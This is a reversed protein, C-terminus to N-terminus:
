AAARDPLLHHHHHDTLPTTRPLTHHHRHHCHQTPITSCRVRELEKKLQAIQCFPPTPPSRTSLHTPPHSPLSQQLSTHKQYVPLRGRAEGEPSRFGILPQQKSLPTTTVHICCRNQHHDHHDYQLTTRYVCFHVNQVRSQKCNLLSYLLDLTCGHAWLLPSPFWRQSLM